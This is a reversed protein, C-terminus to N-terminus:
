SSASEDLLAAYRTDRLAARVEDFNEIASRYDRRNWKVLSTSLRSVDSGVELFNLIDAYRHADSALMEYSIRLTPIALLRLISSARAAKDEERHIRARVFDPDLHIPPNAAQEGTWQHYKGRSRASESSIVHDLKNQRVLHIVRIRKASLYALLWPVYKFQSYMLKFGVAGAQSSGRLAADTFRWGHYPYQWRPVNRQQMLEYFYPLQAGVPHAGRGEPLFLAGFCTIDPHSNLM